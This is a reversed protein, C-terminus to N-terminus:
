NGARMAAMMEKHLQSKLEDTLGNAFANAKSLPSDSQQPAISALSKPKAANRQVAAREVDYTNEPSIGLRKILKYTAIAKSYLDNSSHLTQAMEPFDNRLQEINDQSVIKDFDPYQSLIKNEVSQASSQQQYQKLQEELRRVKKDVKSLHKGEAYQDADLGLEDEQSDQVQQKNNQNDEYQKLLRYAEDRERQAKEKLERLQRFSEQPAVRQEQQPQEVPETEQTEVEEPVQPLNDIDDFM